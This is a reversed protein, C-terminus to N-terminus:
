PPTLVKDSLRRSYVRYVKARLPFEPKLQLM